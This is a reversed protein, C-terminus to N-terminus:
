EEAPAASLPSGLVIHLPVSKSSGNVIHEFTYTGEESAEFLVVTQVM